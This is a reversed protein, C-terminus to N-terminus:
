ETDFKYPKNKYWFVVTLTNDRGEKKMQHFKVNLLLRNTKFMGHKWM